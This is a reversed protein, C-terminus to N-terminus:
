YHLFYMESDKNNYVIHLTKAQRSGLFCSKVTDYFILGTFLFAVWTGVYEDDLTNETNTRRRTATLPSGITSTPSVGDNM